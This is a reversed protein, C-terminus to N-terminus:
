GDTQKEIVVLLGPLTTTMFGIKKVHEMEAMRAAMGSLTVHGTNGNLPAHWQSTEGVIGGAVLV